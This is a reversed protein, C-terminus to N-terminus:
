LVTSCAPISPAPCMVNRMERQLRISSAHEKKNTKKIKKNNM